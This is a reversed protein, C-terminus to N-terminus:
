SPWDAHAIFDPLNVNLWEQTANAKHAPASDQQFSWFDGNFMTENLPKVIPELITKRYIKGNTKVGKECFHLKTVGDYSVGWWVMVYAPHHARQIKKVVRKADKSNRAYVKDNQRNFSEEVTFIKENTFLVPDNWTFDPFPPPEVM